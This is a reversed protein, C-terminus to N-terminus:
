LNLILSPPLDKDHRNRQNSHHQGPNVLYERRPVELLNTPSGACLDIAFHFYLAEVVVGQAATVRIYVLPTVTEHLVSGGVSLANLADLFSL